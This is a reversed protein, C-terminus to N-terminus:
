GVGRIRPDDFAPDTEIEFKAKKIIEDDVIDRLSRELLFFERAAFIDPGGLELFRILRGARRIMRDRKEDMQTRESGEITTREIQKPMM